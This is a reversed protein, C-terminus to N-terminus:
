NCGLRNTIKNNYCYFLIKPVFIKNKTNYSIFNFKHIKWLNQKIVINILKSIFPKKYFKNFYDLDNTKITRDTNSNLLFIGFIGLIVFVLTLIITYITTM